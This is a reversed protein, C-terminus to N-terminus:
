GAKTIRVRAIRTGQMEEVEFTAGGHEFRQGEVPVRGALDYILGSLIDFDKGPLDLGLHKRLDDLSAYGDVLFEKESLAVVEPRTGDRKEETIDGVIEILVDDLTVLGVTGGHEDVVVAIHMRRGQFQKLLEGVGTTEPVFYAPKVLNLIPAEEAVQPTLVDKIYLMGVVDDINDDYVPIRSHRRERALSRAEAVSLNKPIAFMETRPTMIERATTGPFDFVNRIIEEEFVRLTKTEKGMELMIKIEDMTVLSRKQRGRVGGGVVLELPYSVPWFFVSFFSLVPSVRLSIREARELSYWKPSIEGFVLLFFTMLGVGVAMALAQDVGVAEAVRFSLLAASFSAGVNALTNGLLINILTRQPNSLLRSLLGSFRLRESALRRVRLPSLSFIAAESGSFFASLVLLVLLSVIHLLVASSM